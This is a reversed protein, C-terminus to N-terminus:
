ESQYGISNNSDQQGMNKLVPEPPTCIKKPLTLMQFTLQTRAVANMISVCVPTRTFTDFNKLCFLTTALFCIGPPACFGRSTNLTTCVVEETLFIPHEVARMTTKM